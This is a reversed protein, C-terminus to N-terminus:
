QLSGEYMTKADQIETAVNNQYQSMTVFSTCVLHRLCHFIKFLENDPERQLTMSLSEVAKEFCVDILFFKSKLVEIQKQTQTLEKGLQKSLSDMVTHLYDDFERALSEDGKGKKSGTTTTASSPKDSNLRLRNKRIKDFLETVEQMDNPNTSLAARPSRITKESQEEQETEAESM